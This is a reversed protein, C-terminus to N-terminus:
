KRNAALLAAGITRGGRSEFPEHGFIQYRPDRDAVVRRTHEVVRGILTIIAEGHPHEAGEVERIAEAAYDIVHSETGSEVAALWKDLGRDFYRGPIASQDALLRAFRACALVDAAGHIVLASYPCLHHGIARASAPVSM